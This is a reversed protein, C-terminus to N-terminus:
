NILRGAPLGLLVSAKGETDQKGKTVDKPKEMPLAPCPLPISPVQTGSSPLCLQQRHGRTSGVQVGWACCSDDETPLLQCCPSGTCGLAAGQEQGSLQPPATGADRSRRGGSM